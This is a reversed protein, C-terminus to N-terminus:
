GLGGDLHCTDNLRSLVPGRSWFEVVSLSANGFRFPTPRKVGMGLLHALMAGLSGGHSVIAVVEGDKHGSRIDALAASLRAHFPRNGEEKPIPTWEPSHHLGHWIEPYLFEIERWVLGTLVGVGYERLREDRVVPAQLDAALLEATEAARVLDSTYVTSAGWNERVLRRALARAQTRGLETLPSDLQGQLRGETNAVSQGHRILLMKM